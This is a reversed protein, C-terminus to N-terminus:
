RGPGHQLHATREAVAPWSAHSAVLLHLAPRAMGTGTLPLGFALCSPCVQDARSVGHFPHNFEAFGQQGFPVSFVLTM